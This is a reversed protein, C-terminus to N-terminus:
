APWTRDVLRRVLHELESATTAHDVTPDSTPDRVDDEDDAGMLALRDRTASLHGLWGRLPEDRTRPGEADARRVVERLTFARRWVAPELVVAERVHLREMGVVLDAGALLERDVTRSRHEGLDLGLGAAAAVTEPTAPRGSEGLGATRVEVRLGRRSVERRLLAGALPSRCQNATCLVLVRDPAVESRAAPPGAPSM